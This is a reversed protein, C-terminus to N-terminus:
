EGLLETAKPTLEWRMKHQDFWVLGTESLLGAVHKFRGASDHAAVGTWPSRGTHLNFLLRAFTEPDLSYVMAYPGTFELHEEALVTLYPSLNEAERKM